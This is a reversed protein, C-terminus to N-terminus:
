RRSPGATSTVPTAAGTSPAEWSPRSRRGATPCGCSPSGTAATPWSSWGTARARGAPCGARVPTLLKTALSENDFAFEDGDYGITVVGGAHEIWGEAPASQPPFPGDVYVPTFPNAALVHKVDMLLLEQHQQEHNLGLEILFAVEPALGQELLAEMAEDVAQRYAAIEAIGPRTLLGRQPRAHRPGVRTIPTSCSAITPISTGISRFTRGWCSRRSSGRPILGTGSTPSVDPMTQVTQDEASLPAALAETFSRVERFRTRLDVQAAGPRTVTKM